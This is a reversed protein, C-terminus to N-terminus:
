RPDEEAPPLDKPLDIQDGVHVDAAGAADRNLEIAYLIPSSSYIPTTDNPVLPLVDVVKGHQDLYILDLPLSTHAMWFARVKPKDFLFLMGHDAPMSDRHMLGVERQKETAAIEMAFHKDKLKVDITPAAPATTPSNGCGSLLLLVALLGPALPTRRSNLLRIM